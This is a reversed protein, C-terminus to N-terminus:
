KLYASHADVNDSQAAFAPLRFFWLLFAIFSTRDAEVRLNKIVANSAVEDIKAWAGVVALV